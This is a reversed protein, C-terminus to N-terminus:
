VVSDISAESLRMLGMIRRERNGMCCEEGTLIQEIRRQIKNDLRCGDDVEDWILFCKNRVHGRNGKGAVKARNETNTLGDAITVLQTKKIRDLDQM